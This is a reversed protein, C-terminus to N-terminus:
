SRVGILDSRKEHRIVDRLCAVQLRHFVKSDDKNKRGSVQNSMFLNVLRRVIRLM